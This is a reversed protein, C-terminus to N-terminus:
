EGSAAELSLGRTEDIFLGWILVSPITLLSLWGVVSSLGGFRHALAAISAQATIASFAIAFLLWGIMTGRLSTPFLETVASNAAVLLGRGTTSYWTHAVLLWLTPWACHRPPGWYFALVGVIGALGLSVVTRVRGLRNAMWAGLLLGSASVAGGVMLIVSGQTPSLGVVSVAHYYIWTSVATGSIEGILTAIVLPVARRGHDGRFIDYFRSESTTGAAAAHEWRLSEPIARVMLPVLTLSLAPIAFMWRWSYGFRALLPALIVCLGGGTGTAFNALGQGHARRATPLSEALMVISSAIAAGISAYAAIEFVIFPASATSLAAGLSCLATAVLCLLLIRRRGLRDAMRSLILSGFANLSIWAYMRAIGSQDLLFSTAIFPAAVGLLTMAYGQFNLIAFIARVTARGHGEPALQDVPYTPVPTAAAVDM